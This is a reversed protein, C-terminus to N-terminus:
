WASSTQGVSQLRASTRVSSRTLLSGAAACGLWALVHLRRERIRCRGGAAACGLAAPCRLRLLGMARVEADRISNRLADNESRLSELSERRADADKAAASSLNRRARRSGGDAGRSVAM